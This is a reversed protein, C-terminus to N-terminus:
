KTKRHHMKKVETLQDEKGQNQIKADLSGDM